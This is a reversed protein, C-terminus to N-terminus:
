PRRTARRIPVLRGARQRAATPADARRRRPARASACPSPGNNAIDSASFLRIQLERSSGAESVSRERGTERADLMSLSVNERASSSAVARQRIGLITERLPPAIAEADPRDLAGPQQERQQM